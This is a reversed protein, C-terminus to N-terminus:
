FDWTWLAEVELNQDLDTSAVGLVNGGFAYEAPAYAANFNFSSNIGTRKSYGLIMANDALDSGLATSLARSSPNPQSRSSFDVHWETDKGNSWTWGVSYVTLDDWSFAPSTSDGLLSLLRDPLLRSPFASVDSYM